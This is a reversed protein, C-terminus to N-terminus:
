TINIVGKKAGNKMKRNGLKCHECGNSLQKHCEDRIMPAASLGGKRKYLAWFLKVFKCNNTTQVKKKFIVVVVAWAKTMPAASLREKHKYLAGFLKILKYNKTDHIKKFEYNVPRRWRRPAWGRRRRRRAWSGAPPCACCHMAIRIDNLIFYTLFVNNQALFRGTDRRRRRRRAWSRAHSRAGCHLQLARNSGNINM